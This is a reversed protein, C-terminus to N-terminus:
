MEEMSYNPAEKTIIVDHVHSERQGAPTIRVFQAKQHLEKITQCGLYGMGSRLGGLLQHIVTQLEGRYPVRGEIGEPVFKDSGHIESQFYRDSSGKNMAGLSGMGRYAKYARGQYLETNGPAEKTGAFLIGVMVTDAGIALAKCVDGAYRIGGDAIIATYTERKRLVNVVNALATLQPVGVGTVMRTTCISGPGIGVKVGDAGAEVLALAAEGTVINGALLPTNPYHKKIWAVQDIVSQAHGHATDVVLIDVGAAVLQEARAQSDKGIGIAAGVRLQGRENKCALPKEKSKQIDKATILGCLEFNANVVLIKEIRHVHLLHIITEPVADERVTILRERPTMVQAVKKELDKEFRIDRGTVIGLLCKGEVVPVGSIAQQEMLHLLEKVTLQPSVTIPDVIKGSAFKKVKRVENSQEEMTMNKHIIGMGGAQALAIALSAETVSDMAASLLPINLPIGATLVTNLRVASPLVRSHAPVLSLDDFTFADQVINLM